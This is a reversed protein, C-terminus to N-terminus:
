RYQIQDGENDAIDELAIDLLEDIPDMSGELHMAKFIGPKCDYLKQCFDYWVLEHNATTISPQNSAIPLCAMM